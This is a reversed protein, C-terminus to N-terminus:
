FETRVFLNSGAGLRLFAPELWARVEDKTNADILNSFQRILDDWDMAKISTNVEVVLEKKGEHSVFSSRMKEAHHDVYNAFTMTIALWIDDPRLVLAHHQSYANYLTGVFGNDFPAMVPYEPYSYTLITGRKEQIQSTMSLLNKMEVPTPKYNPKTNAVKFTAM